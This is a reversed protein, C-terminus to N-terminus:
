SCYGETDERPPWFELFFFDKTRVTRALEDAIHESCLHQYGSFEERSKYIVRYDFRRQTEKMADAALWAFAALEGCTACRTGPSPLFTRLPNAVEKAAQEDVFKVFAYGEEVIPEVFVIRAKFHRLEHRLQRLLCDTCVSRPTNAGRHKVYTSNVKHLGRVTQQCGQCVKPKPKLFGFLGM